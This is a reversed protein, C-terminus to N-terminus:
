DLFLTDKWKCLNEKTDLKKTNKKKKAFHLNFKKAGRSMM